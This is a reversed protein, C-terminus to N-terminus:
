RTAAMMTVLLPVVRPAPVEYRGRRPSTLWGAAVLQRLHHHLQGTTGLSDQQLLEATTRVGNMVLRLITLRAPHALADLAAAQETWDQELLADAPQGVQWRVPGAEPVDVSGTMLVAGPMQRELEELAWFPSGSTPPASEAPSDGTPASPAQDRRQLQRVAQELEAVRAELEPNTM